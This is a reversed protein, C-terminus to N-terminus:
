ARQSQNRTTYVPKQEQLPRIYQAASHAHILVWQSLLCGRGRDDRSVQPDTPKLATPSSPVGTSSHRRTAADKGAVGQPDDVHVPIVGWTQWAAGPLGRSPRAADTGPASVARVLVRWFRLVTSRDIWVLLDARGVRHAWTTSHGGEFIWQDRAEVELCLRTKEAASREVWRPQWHITDIHVVPIGTLQGLRRALTSKGSGPQGVIMIRQM